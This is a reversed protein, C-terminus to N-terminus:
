RQSTHAVGGYGHVWVRCEGGKKYWGLVGLWLVELQDRDEGISSKVM